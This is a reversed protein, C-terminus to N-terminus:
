KGRLRQARGRIQTWVRPRPDHWGTASTSQSELCCKNANLNAEPKKTLQPLEGVVHTGARSLATREGEARPRGGNGLSGHLRPAPARRELASGPRTSLVRQEGLHPPQKLIKRGPEGRGGWDMRGM